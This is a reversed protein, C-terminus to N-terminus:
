YVERRRSRRCSIGDEWVDPAVDVCSVKVTGEEADAGKQRQRQTTTETQMEPLAMEGVTASRDRPRMGLPVM